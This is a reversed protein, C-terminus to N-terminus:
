FYKSYTSWSSTNMTHTARMCFFHSCGRSWTVRRWLGHIQAASHSESNPQYLSIILFTKFLCLNIKLKDSGKQIDINGVLTDASCCLMQNGPAPDAHCCLQVDRSFFFSILHSSSFPLGCHYNLPLALSIKLRVRQLCGSSFSVLAIFILVTFLFVCLPYVAM